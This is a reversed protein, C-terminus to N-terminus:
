VRRLLVQRVENRGAAFLLEETRPRTYSGHAKRDVFTCFRRYSRMNQTHPNRAINLGAQFALRRNRRCRQHRLAMGGRTVEQKSPSMFRVDMVM